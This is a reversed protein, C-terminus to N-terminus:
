KKTYKKIIQLMAIYEDIDIGRTFYDLLSKPQASPTSSAPLTIDLGHKFMFELKKVSLNSVPISYFLEAITHGSLMKINNVDAGSHVLKEAVEEMRDSFKPQLLLTRLCMNADRKWYGAALELDYSDLFNDAIILSIPSPNECCDFLIDTTIDVIEDEYLKYAFEPEQRLARRFLADSRVGEKSIGYIEKKAWEIPFTVKGELLRTQADSGKIFYEAPDTRTKNYETIEKEMQAETLNANNRKSTHVRNM